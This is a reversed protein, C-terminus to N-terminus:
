RQRITDSLIGGDQRGKVNRERFWRKMETETEPYRDTPRQREPRM